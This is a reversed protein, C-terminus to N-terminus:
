EEGDDGDEPKEEPAFIIDMALMTLVAPALILCLCEEILNIEDGPTKLIYDLQIIVMAAVSAMYIYLIWIM